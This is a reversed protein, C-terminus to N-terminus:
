LGFDIIVYYRSVPTSTSVPIIVSEEQTSNYAADSTAMLESEIASTRFYISLAFDMRLNHIYHMIFVHKVWM